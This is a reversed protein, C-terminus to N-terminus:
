EIREESWERDGGVSLTGKATYAWCPTPRGTTVSSCEPFVSNARGATHFRNRYDRRCRASQIIQPHRFSALLTANRAVAAEHRERSTFPCIEEACTKCTQTMQSGKARKAGKTGTQARRSGERRGVDIAHGEAAKTALWSVAGPCSPGKPCGCM